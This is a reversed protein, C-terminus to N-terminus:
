VPFRVEDRPRKTAVADRESDAPRERKPSRASVQEEDSAKAIESEKEKEKDNGNEKAAEM